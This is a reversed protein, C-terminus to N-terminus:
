FINDSLIQDVIVTEKVPRGIYQGVYCPDLGGGPRKFAIDSEELIKGSPITKIAVISRRMQSRDEIEEISLDKDEGRAANAYRLHDNARKWSEPHLCVQWDPGKWNVEPSLHKAVIVAGNSAAIAPMIESDTHDVFGVPVGFRQELMTICDLQTYRVPVGMELTSAMIHQGHLIAFRNTGQNRIYSVAWDIEKITGMLTAILFPKGCRSLANLMRPNNLDTANMTLVDAGMLAVPGVLKDSLCAAQFLMNKGHVVSILEEIQTETFERPKYIAFGEHTSIYLDDAIVLQFEIGDAGCNSATDVMRLALEFDGQNAQGEEAIMLTPDSRSCYHKGIQISPTNKIHLM